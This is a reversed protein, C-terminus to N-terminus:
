KKDTLRRQDTVYLISHFMVLVLEFCYFVYSFETIPNLSFYPRYVTRTQDLLVGMLVISGLAAFCLVQARDRYDFRYVAYASRNRLSFGRCKMSASAEALSDFLWTLLISWERLLNRPSRKGKGIGAQAERIKKRQEHIRPVMRLVLSLYLSLKPWIRGTLYVIKEETFVAHIGSLWLLICSIQVALVAGYRLAEVTVPNGAITFGTPTVGFNWFCAYFLPFLVAFLLVEAAFRLTMRRLCFAQAAAGFLLIGLCVPQNFSLSCALMVAYYFFSVAPHIQTM